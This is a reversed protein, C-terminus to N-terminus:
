YIGAFLLSVLITYIKEFKFNISNNAEFNKLNRALYVMFFLGVLWMVIILYEIKIAYFDAWNSRSIFLGFKENLTILPNFVMRKKGIFYLNIFSFLLYILFLYDPMYLHRKAFRRWNALFCYGLVCLIIFIAYYLTQMHQVFNFAIIGGLLLSLGPYNKNSRM